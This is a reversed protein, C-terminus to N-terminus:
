GGLGIAGGVQTLHCGGVEAGNRRGIRTAMAHLLYKAHLPLIILRLPPGFRIQGLGFKQAMDPGSGFFIHQASIPGVM